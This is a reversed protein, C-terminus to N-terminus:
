RGTGRRRLRRITSSAPNSTSTAEVGVLTTVPQVANSRDTFSAAPTATPRTIPNSRNVSMVPQCPAARASSPRQVPRGPSRFRRNHRNGAGICEYRAGIPHPTVPLVASEPETMLPEIGRVGVMRGSGSACLGAREASLTSRRLEAREDLPRPCWGRLTAARTRIGYPSGLFCWTLAM